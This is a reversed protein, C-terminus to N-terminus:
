CYGLVGCCRRLGLLRAGAPVDRLPDVAGPGPRAAEIALPMILWGGSEPEHITSSPPLAMTM